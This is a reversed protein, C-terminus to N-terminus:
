IIEIWLHRLAIDPLSGQRQHASRLMALRTTHDHRELSLRDSTRWGAVNTRALAGIWRDVRKTWDAITGAQVFGIMAGHSHAAGHHGDKFRQIGGTTGSAVRIYERKDRDTGPPTPLRKCEIPLLPDFDSHRRGDIWLVEGAPAVALDIRRAQKVEDPEEMRFQLIDWGDSKRAASNLHACLQGTLVTEATVPRRDARDRWVPLQEAIFEILTFLWTAPRHLGPALGGSQIGLDADEALM